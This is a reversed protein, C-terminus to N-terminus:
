GAASTFSGEGTKPDLTVVHKVNDDTTVILRVKGEGADELVFENEQYEALKIMDAAKKILDSKSLSGEPLKYEGGNEGAPKQSADANEKPQEQPKQESAQGEAPANPVFSYDAVVGDESITISFTGNANAFTVLYGSEQKVSKLDKVESKPCGSADIAIQGALTEDMKMNTARCGTLCFALVCAAAFLKNRGAHNKAKM